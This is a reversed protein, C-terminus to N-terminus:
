PIHAYPCTELWMTELVHGHSVQLKLVSKCALSILTLRYHFSVLRSATLVKVELNIDPIYSSLVSQLLNDESRWPHLDRGEIIFYFHLM